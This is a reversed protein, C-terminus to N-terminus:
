KKRFRKPSNIKKKILLLQQDIYMQPIIKQFEKKSKISLFIKKAEKFNSLRREIEGCLLLPIVYKANIDKEKKKYFVNLSKKFHKLSYKLYEIILNKNHSSEAQWSAKLYIFGLSSNYSFSEQKKYYKRYIKAFYFYPKHIKKINQYENSYIILKIIKLNKPSLKKKFLVFKCKPCQPLPNPSITYGVPRLDLRKGITTATVICVYNFKIGDIPCVYKEKTKTLSFLNISISLFILFFVIKKIVLNKM